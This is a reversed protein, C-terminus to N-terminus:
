VPRGCIRMVLACIGYIVLILKITWRLNLPVEQFACGLCSTDFASFVVQTSFAKLLNAREKEMLARARSFSSAAKALTDGTTCTNEVGYKRSDESLKKGSLILIPRVSVILM